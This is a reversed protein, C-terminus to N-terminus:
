LSSVWVVNDVTINTDDAFTYVITQHGLLDSLVYDDLLGKVQGLNPVCDDTAADSAAISGDLGRLVLANNIVNASMPIMDQSGNSKKIYAEDNTTSDTQKDLKSADLQSIATTRATTEAAIAEFVDTLTVDLVGELVTFRNGLSQFPKNKIFSKVLDSTENWDSQLQHQAAQAAYYKANDTDEGARTGTGGVAWSQSTVSAESAIDANESVESAKIDVFEKSADVSQKSLLASTADNSASEASANADSAYGRALNESNLAHEESQASANAADRAWDAYMSISTVFQEYETPTPPLTPLAEILNDRVIDLSLPGAMIRYALNDNSDFRFGKLSLILTGSSTLVEWPVDCTLDPYIPVEKVLDFSANKLLVSKFTDDWEKGSFKFKFKVFGVTDAPIKPFYKTCSPCTIENGSVSFSILIM